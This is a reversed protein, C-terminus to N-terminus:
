PHLFNLGLDHTSSVLSVLFRYILDLWTAEPISESAVLPVRVDRGDSLSITATGLRQGQQVPAAVREQLDLQIPPVQGGTRPVVMALDGDLAVPVYERKGRDVGIRRVVEGQRGLRAVQFNRFGWELLEAAERWRNSAHLVVAILKQEERTASAILCAGAAATTGTKVGDAGQLWGLLKNTNYLTQERGLQEYTIPVVPQSVIARFTPNQLAARTIVALDYATSVHQPHTLGHPNAFRSNRAGLERARQTMVKAFEEVSGSLHEAIAAAADNGSRLLLGHLLDHLSYVEGEKIYMSSGPTRAARRSVKVLDDMDGRELAILATLVKTTSAPDRPQHANRAYLLEGTQWDLVAVAGAWGRPAPEVKFRAAATEPAAHALGAPLTLCLVLAIWWRFLRTM